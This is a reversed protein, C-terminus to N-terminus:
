LQLQQQSLAEKFNFRAMSCTCGHQLVHLVVEMLSFAKTTKVIVRKNRWCKSSQGQLHPYFNSEWNSDLQFKMVSTEANPPPGKDLRCCGRQTSWKSERKHRKGYLLPMDKKKGARKSVWKMVGVLISFFFINIWIFGSSIGHFLSFICFHIILKRLFYNCFSLAYPNLFM